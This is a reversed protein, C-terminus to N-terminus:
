PQLGLLYIDHGQLSHAVHVFIDWGQHPQVGQLLIECEKTATGRTFNHSLGTAIVKNFTNRM